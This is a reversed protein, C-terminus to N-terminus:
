GTQGAHRGLLIGITTIGEAYHTSALLDSIGTHKIYFCHFNHTQPLLFPCSSFHVSLLQIDITAYAVCKM